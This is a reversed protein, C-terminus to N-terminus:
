VTERVQSNWYRWGRCMNLYRSQKVTGVSKCDWGEAYVCIYTSDLTWFGPDGLPGGMTSPQTTRIVNQHNTYAATRFSSLVRTVETSNIKLWYWLSYGLIEWLRSRVLNRHLTRWDNWFKVPSEADNSGLVQWSEPCNPYKKLSYVNTLCRFDM